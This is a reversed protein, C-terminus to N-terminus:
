RVKPNPDRLGARLAEFAPETLRARRLETAGVGGVLRRMAARRTAKSGIQQVLDQEHM